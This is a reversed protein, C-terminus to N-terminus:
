RDTVFTGMDALRSGREHGHPFGYGEESKVSVGDAWESASDCVGQYTDDADPRWVISLDTVNRLPFTANNSATLPPRGDLLGAIADGTSNGPVTGNRLPPRSFVDM